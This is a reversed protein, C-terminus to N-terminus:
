DSLHSSPVEGRTTTSGHLKSAWSPISAGHRYNAIPSTVKCGCTCFHTLERSVAADAAIMPKLVPLRPQLFRHTDARIEGPRHCLCVCGVQWSTLDEWHPASVLNDIGCISCHDKKVIGEESWRGDDHPRDACKQEDMSWESLGLQWLQCRSTLHEQLQLNM